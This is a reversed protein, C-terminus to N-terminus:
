LGHRAASWAPNRKQAHLCFDTTTNVLSTVMVFCTMKHL